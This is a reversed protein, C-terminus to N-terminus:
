GGGLAAKLLENMGPKGNSGPTAGRNGGGFDAGNAKALYPEAALLERLLKEVNKPAGEDNFELQARDLLRYAVDPNRYGLRTAAELATGRIIQDQLQRQLAANQETLKRAEAAQKEAESMGATAAAEAAKEAASARTRYGAAERRAEALERELRAVREAESETGGGAPAGGANGGAAAAPQQPEQGGAPAGAQPQAAAGAQPNAAGSTNEGTPPM